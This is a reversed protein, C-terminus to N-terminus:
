KCILLLWETINEKPYKLCKQYVLYQNEENIIIHSIDKFDTNSNMNETYSILGIQNEEAM